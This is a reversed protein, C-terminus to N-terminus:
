TEEELYRCWGEPQAADPNRSFADWAEPLPPEPREVDELLPGEALHLPAVTGSVPSGSDCWGGALYLRAAALLRVLATEPPPSGRLTAVM